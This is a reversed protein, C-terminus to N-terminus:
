VQRQRQAEFLLLGTAVAVNLSDARGYMPIKATLSTLELLSRSLGTAENGVLFATPGCYDLTLYSVAAHASTAIVQIGHKQCWELVSKVPSSRVRTVAFLSGMSARVAKPDYWDTSNGTVIVTANTADATRLITGLNGPDQIEHAILILANPTTQIAELPIEYEQVIALIGQPGERLSISEFVKRTVQRCPINRVRASEITDYALDSRLLEPCYLITEVPAGLDVAEKILRIGEVLFLRYRHRYKTQRLSRTKKIYPNVLSSIPEVPPTHLWFM